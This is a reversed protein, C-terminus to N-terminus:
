QCLNTKPLVEDAGVAPLQLQAGVDLRYEDFGPWGANLDYVKSWQDYSGYYKEAICGYTDGEKVVYTGEPKASAYGEPVQVNGNEETQEQKTADTQDASEGDKVDNAEDEAKKDQEVVAVSAYEQLRDHVSMDQGGVGTVAVFLPALITAGLATLTKQFLTMETM